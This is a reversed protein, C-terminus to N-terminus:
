LGWHTGTKIEAELPVNFDIGYLKKMYEVPFVSLANSMVERFFNLEKPHVECIISDHITNTIFSEVNNAKFSHWAYVLAVPVIEATALYQM